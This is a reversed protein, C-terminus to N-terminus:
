KRLYAVYDTVAPTGGESKVLIAIQGRHYMSHMLIHELVEAVSNDFTQGKTNAYSIRDLLAEPSGALEELRKGGATLQDRAVQTSWAPWIPTTSVRGDVRDLWIVVTAAMHGLVTLARGPHALNAVSAGTLDNAWRNYRVREVFYAFDPNKGM